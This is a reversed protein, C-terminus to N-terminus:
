QNKFQRDGLPRAYEAERRWVKDLMEGLKQDNTLQRVREAERMINFTARDRIRALAQGNGRRLHGYRSSVQAHYRDLFDKVGQRYRRVREKGDEIRRGSEIEARLGPHIHQAPGVVYYHQHLHSEDVHVCAAILKEAFEQDMFATTDAVWERFEDKQEHGASEVIETAIPYSMVCDILGRFDHRVARTRIKGDKGTVSQGASILEAIAAHVALPNGRIWAVPKPDAVHSCHSPVRDAEMLLDQAQSCKRAELRAFQHLKKM